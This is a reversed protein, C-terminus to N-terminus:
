FLEMQEREKGQKWDACKHKEPPDAETGAIVDLDKKCGWTEGNRTIFKCNDCSEKM